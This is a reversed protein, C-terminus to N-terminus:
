QCDILETGDYKLIISLRNIKHWQVEASRIYNAFNLSLQNEFPTFKMFPAIKVTEPLMARQATKATVNECTM